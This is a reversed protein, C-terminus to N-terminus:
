GLQYDLVWNFLANLQGTKFLYKLTGHTDTDLPRISSFYNTKSWCEFFRCDQNNRKAFFMKVHKPHIKLTDIAPKNKFYFPPSFLILRNVPLLEAFSAAAYGGASTGLVSVYCPKPINQELYIALEHMNSAIPPIGNMFCQSSFDKLYFILDFYKAAIFHFLQVPINLRHTGGTFCILANNPKDSLKIKQIDPNIYEKLLIHKPDVHKLTKLTVDEPEITSLKTLFQRVLSPRSYCLLWDLLEPNNNELPAHCLKILENVLHHRSKHAIKTTIRLESGIAIKLRQKEKLTLPNSKLHYYLM